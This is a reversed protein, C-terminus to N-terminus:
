ITERRLQKAQKLRCWENITNELMLKIIRYEIINVIKSEKISDLKASLFDIAYEEDRM